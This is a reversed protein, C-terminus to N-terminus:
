SKTVPKLRFDMDQPTITYGTTSKSMSRVLQRHVVYIYWCEDLMVSQLQKYVAARQKPDTLEKGRDILDDVQKNSYDRAISGGTHWFWNVASDPDPSMITIQNFDIFDGPSRQLKSYSANDLFQLDVQIGIKKLQEAIIQAGRTVDAKETPAIGKIKIGKAFGAEALLKKATEIDPKPSFKTISDDRFMFGPPFPKEAPIAHGYYDANVTADRDLAYSVAQRVRKDGFPGKVTGFSVYNWNWGAISQVDVDAGSSLSKVQDYPVTDVLDVQETTLLNLKVTPDPVFSVTVTDVKPFGADWYQDFRKLTLHDGSVWEAVEFPGTGIPARAFADAGLKTFAAKSLVLGGFGQVVAMLFPTNPYELNYRVTYKDVAEANKVGAYLFKIRLNNQIINNVSFVVDDATMEGYGGHFQIGQRLTVLWSSPSEQKWGTALEPDLKNTKYNWRGLQDYINWDMITAAMDGEQQFDLTAPEAFIAVNLTKSGDAARSITTHAGPGAAARADLAALGRVGLVSAGVGLASRRMFDRRSLSQAM